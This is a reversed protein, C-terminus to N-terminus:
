RKVEVKFNNMPNKGKGMDTQGTRTIRVISGTAVNALGSKLAYGASTTVPLNTGAERFNLYEYVEGTNPDTINELGEWAGTFQDGDTDFIIKTRTEAVTEWGDGTADTKADTAM